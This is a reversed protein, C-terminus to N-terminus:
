TTQEIEERYLEVLHQHIDIKDQLMRYMRREVPSGQLHVVTVKNKQGARHARANAQLYLETSTIPGWWVVTDARTLTIGHGAAAPALLLVRLDEETQFRKIIDGREHAPTGGHISDAVVGQASLKDRLMDNTHRYNVFVIVKHSTENILDMLENFRDSVDFEVIEKTDTYVAGCNHVIYPIGTTGRVVFRSRPGCNLLDYVRSKGADIAGAGRDMWATSATRIADSAKARVIDCGAKNDYAGQSYRDMPEHSPQQGTGSCYGLPLEGSQVAWGRRHPGTNECRLLGRVHRGLIGRLQQGLTRVRCDGTRWLKALGQKASQYLTRAYRELYPASSDRDNQSTRQRPSVWLEPSTGPASSTPVPERARRCEWLRMSMDMASEQTCGSIAGGESYGDPLRVKPRVFRGSAYGHLVEEASVWMDMLVRHDPTLLVGDLNMVPKYGMYVSGHQAVWEEGDWVKHADTVNQIPVWGVDTLVETNYAICAIQLLKNLKAAANPATIEEGAAVALMQKAMTDYYKQQQKTLPIERTTYLMDPLDLCEEKTFRIAPQLARYVIDRHGERPMYKFQTVKVMVQDRFAGFFNPVATPNVLKALGYADVPSQSAPTGTMMWLRTQPTILKNLVKWRDTSVSKVANAEDVIILDFGGKALEEYIVKIGDFNIIVFETGQNLISIRKERSGIAVAATRHMVTKFLDSRWATELISVPGIILVRKVKGKTMLYDAAWAAASTKGTGAENFVFCRPHTALFAATEKQHAFPAYVGPWDYDKLIPSPVDKIRLNRLIQTEDLGWNVLVKGLEGKVSLVKSKPILAAIQAHKKTILLLAKGDVIQM